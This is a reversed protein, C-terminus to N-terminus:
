ESYKKLIAPIKEPKIKAHVSEDIMLVPGLACAGLCRVVELSFKGDRTTEGAAIGLESSIRELLQSSSRMYCSTGKCVSIKFQGAPKQSAPAIIGALAIVDDLPVVLEAAIRTLIEGPLHGLTSLLEQLLKVLGDPKEKYRNVLYNVEELKEELEVLCECNEHETM